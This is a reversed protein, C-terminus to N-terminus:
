IDTRLLFNLLWDKLGGRVSCDRPSVFKWKTQQIRAPRNTTPSLTPSGFFTIFLCRSYISFSVASHCFIRRFPPFTSLFLLISTLSARRAVRDREKGDKESASGFNKGPFCSFCQYGDVCLAHQTSKSADAFLSRIHYPLMPFSKSAFSLSERSSM